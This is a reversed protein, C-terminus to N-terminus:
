PASLPFPGRKVAKADSMIAECHRKFYDVYPKLSTREWGEETGTGMVNSAFQASTSSIELEYLLSGVTVVNSPDFSDITSVDLPICVNGKAWAYADTPLSRGSALLSLTGTDPHVVFPSKLLHNMRKSVEADLRPYTYQVKIELM